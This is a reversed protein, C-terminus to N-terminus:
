RLKFRVITMPEDDKLRPYFSDLADRLEAVSNFGDSEADAPSLDNLRVHKVDTINVAANGHPTRITTAGLAFVRHGRRITTTKTGNRVLALYQSALTIENM